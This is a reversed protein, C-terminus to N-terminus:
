LFHVRALRDQVACSAVSSSSCRGLKLLTLLSPTWSRGVSESPVASGATQDSAASRKHFAVCLYINACCREGAGFTPSDLPQRLCKQLYEIATDLQGEGLLLQGMRLLAEPCTSDVHLAQKLLGEASAANDQAMRLYAHVTLTAASSTNHRQANALHREAAHLDGRLVEAHCLLAQVREDLSAGGGDSRAPIGRLMEVALDLKGCRLLILGELFQVLRLE